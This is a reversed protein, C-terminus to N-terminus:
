GNTLQATVVITNTQILQGNWRWRGVLVHTGSSFQVHAAWLRTTVGSSTEQDLEVLPVSAGNLDLSFSTNSSNLRNHESTSAPQVQFVGEQIRYSRGASLDVNLSCREGDKACTMTAHDGVPIRQTVSPLDLGRRLFAAMEGRTVKRNPCYQTNAPPNCGKTIGVAAIANIDSEFISNNDDNFHDISVRPLDLARRLFAAMQGRDVDDDPCYRDNAPPNCGMTIGVAAIANIDSEFISGNDDNFHDTSVHPLDLARRLFAAMEGRTVDDDPCYQTNAPPNCGKTIGVAAIADIDAEFLHGDDDDFSGNLVIGKAETSLAVGLAAVAVAVVPVAM